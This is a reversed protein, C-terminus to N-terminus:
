PAMCIVEDSWPSELDNPGLARIRFAYKTGSTLGTLTASSRGSIKAQTWPGPVATDSHQRMEIIDSKTKPVAQCSLGIEGPNDGMTPVVHGWAAGLIVRGPRFVRREM